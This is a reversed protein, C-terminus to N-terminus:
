QGMQITTNGKGMLKITWGTGTMYTLIATCWGDRGTANTRRGTAKMFPGKQGSSNAGDMDKIIKFKEM